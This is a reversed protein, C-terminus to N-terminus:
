CLSIGSWGSTPRGGEATHCDCVPGHSGARAVGLGHGPGSACTRGLEKWVRGCGTGPSTSGSGTMLQGAPCPAHHRGGCDCDKLFTKSKTLFGQLGPGALRRGGLWTVRGDRRRLRWLVQWTCASREPETSPARLLRRKSGIRASRLASRAGPTAFHSAQGRSEHRLWTLRERIPVFFTARIGSREKAL